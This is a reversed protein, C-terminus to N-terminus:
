KTVTVNDFFVTRLRYNSHTSHQLYLYAKDFDLRLDHTELITKENESVFVTDRDLAIELKQLGIKRGTREEPWKETLLMTEHGAVKASILCRTNQGPPVGIYMVQLWSPEDSPDEAVTPCLFAGATMYCGNAQDNWDLDFSVRVADTLDIVRDKTRVGHFKVTTDDTGISSAAMRLRGDVVDVIEQEFDNRVTHVWKAEDLRDGPFADEFAPPAPQGTLCTLACLTLALPSM